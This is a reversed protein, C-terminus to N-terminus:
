LNGYDDRYLGPSIGTKPPASAFAGSQNFTYWKGAVTGAGGLLSAGAGLTGATAAQDGKMQALEADAGFNMGQARFGGAEREANSRIMLADFKTDAETDSTIDVASGSNVDVGNGALVARQRGKLKAGEQERQIRAADGRAVADQAAREALIQNNRMVASQYAGQAKGAQGQQYAGYAAAAASAASAILAATAITGSTVGSM